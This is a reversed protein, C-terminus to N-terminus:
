YRDYSTIAPLRAGAPRPLWHLLGDPGTATIFGFRKEVRWPYFDPRYSVGITVSAGVVTSTEAARALACPLTAPERPRLDGLNQTPADATPPVSLEAWHAGRAQIVSCRARVDHAALLGENLITLPTSFPDTPNLAASSSVTIAPSLFYLTAAVAIVFLILLFLTRLYSHVRLFGRRKDPHLTAASHPARRKPRERKRRKQTGTRKDRKIM